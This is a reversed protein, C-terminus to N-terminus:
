YEEEIEINENIGCKLQTSIMSWVVSDSYKECRNMIRRARGNNYLSAMALYDRRVVFLRKAMEASSVDIEATFRDRDATSTRIKRASRKTERREYSREATELSIKAKRISKALQQYNKLEEAVLKKDDKILASLVSFRAKKEKKNMEILERM